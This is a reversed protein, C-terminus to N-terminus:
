ESSFTLFIGHIQGKYKREKTKDQAQLRVKVLEVPTVILISEVIGAGLGASLILYSM